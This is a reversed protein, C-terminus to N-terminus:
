RVKILTTLDQEYENYDSYYKDLDNNESKQILDHFENLDYEQIEIEELEIYKPKKM